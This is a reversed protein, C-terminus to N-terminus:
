NGGDIDLPVQPIGYDISKYFKADVSNIDEAHFPNTDGWIMM